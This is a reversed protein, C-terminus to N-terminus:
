MGGGVGDEGHRGSPGVKKAGGGIRGSRRQQKKVAGSAGLVIEDAERVSNRGSGGQKRRAALHVLVSGGAEKGAQGFADEIGGLHHRADLREGVKDGDRQGSISQIVRFAAEHRKAEGVAGVGGGGQKLQPRLEREDARNQETGHDHEIAGGGGGAEGSSVHQQEVARVVGNDRAIVRGAEGLEQAFAAGGDFNLDVAVRAM